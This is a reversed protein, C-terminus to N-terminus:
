RQRRPVLGPASAGLVLTQAARTGNHIHMCPDDINRVSAKTWVGPGPTAAASPADTLDASEGRQTPHAPLGPTPTHTRVDIDIWHSGRVRGGPCLSTQGCAM